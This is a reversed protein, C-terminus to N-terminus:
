REGGRLAEEEEASDQNTGMIDSLIDQTDNSLRILGGEVDGMAERLRKKSEAMMTNQERLVKNEDTLADNKKCVEMWDSIKMKLEATLRRWERRLVVGETPCGDAEKCPGEPQAQEPRTLTAIQENRETIVMELHTIIANRLMLHSKKEALAAIFDSYFCFDAEDDKEVNIGISYRQITM